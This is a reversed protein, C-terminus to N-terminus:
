AKEVQVLHQVKAIMGRVAKTDELISVANIKRLNLGILNKDQYMDAKSRSRVLTVRVKGVAGKAAAKPAAKTPVAPPLPPAKQTPATAM